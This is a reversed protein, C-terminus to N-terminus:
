LFLKGDVFKLSVGAVNITANTQGGIKINNDSNKLDVICIMEGSFNISIKSDDSVARRKGNEMGVHIPVEFDITSVSPSVPLSIPNLSSISNSPSVSNPPSISQSSSILESSSVHNNPVTQLRILKHPSPNSPSAHKPISVDSPNSVNSPSSNSISSSSKPTPFEGLSISKTITLSSTPKSPSVPKPISLDSSYSVKSPSSNSISSSSKSAPFEKLSSSKTMTSSSKSMEKLRLDSIKLYVNIYEKKNMETEKIFIYHKDSVDYRSFKNNSFVNPNIIIKTRPILLKKLNICNSFAYQCIESVNEPIVLEELNVCNTFAHECIKHTKNSILLKRLNTCGFFANAEITEMNICNSFNISNIDSCFNFAGFHIQALAPYFSIDGSLKVCNKFADKKIEKIKHGFYVHVIESCMLFAGEEIIIINLPLSIPGTFGCNAFAFKEIVLLDNCEFVINGKLNRCNTFASEGIKKISHPFVLDGSLHSCGFFGRESISTVNSGINLTNINFKTIGKIKLKEFSLDGVVEVDFEIIQGNNCKYTGKTSMKYTMYYFFM